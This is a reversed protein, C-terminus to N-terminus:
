VLENGTQARAPGFPYRVRCRIVPAWRRQPAASLDSRALLATCPDQPPTLPAAFPNEARNGQPSPNRNEQSVWRMSPKSSEISHVKSKGTELTTVGHVSDPVVVNANGRAEARVLALPHSPRSVFPNVRHNACSAGLQLSKRRRTDPPNKNIKGDEFLFMSAEVHTRCDATRLVQM